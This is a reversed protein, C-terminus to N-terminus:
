GAPRGAGLYAEIVRPNEAIREPTGLAITAGQDLVQIRSCLQMILRLDHDVVVVACGLRSRVRRINALLEDSESENMGAAPEDLLLVRPRRIVARAIEVRRQMGYPLNAVEEETAHLLDFWGLLEEVDGASTGSPMGAEVNERVTLHSFLRINQFTRALGLDAIRHAPLRTVDHGDLTIRGEDAPLVGSLANLLTTKGSGNPGILGLIEGPAVALDVGALARLGQFRKEVGDAALTSAGAALEDMAGAGTDAAPEDSPEAGTLPERLSARAGRAARAGRRRGRLRRLLDDAETRGLLGEPRWILTLIILLAIVFNVTGTMRPLELPGIRVGQEVRSLTDAMFTVLAAGAVAGTVSARGGIVLMALLSFTATFYFQGPDFALVSLAWLSGAAGMMAGSVIWAGYRSRVVAIGVAGSSLPDERTARLRLGPGSVKYLRAFGVFVIAAALAVWLTTLRPIGFLGLTGRTFTKWEQFVTHFVVLLALTGMAMASETMRVLGGGVVAAVVATVLAAVIVVPLLSLEANALMGPLDPLQSAKVAPPITLLATTYAGVGMFALHGFSVIGSDGVFVQLSTVLTVNLLFVVYTRNALNSGAVEVGIAGAALVASLLGVGVLAPRLRHVPLLRGV